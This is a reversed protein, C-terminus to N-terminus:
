KGYAAESEAAMTLREEAEAVTIQGNMLMPLLWDRLETLQKNQLELIDQKKFFLEVVSTFAKIIPKPPLVIEVAKVVGGSVEKFTSGSAKSVITPMTREVTLFVFETSYGDKPVFSKFGQNTTVKERAIAMYGIPARSSMLITGKPLLKLSASRIGEDTVDTEGKTIYRKGVNLSLDKPTIWPTGDTTFNEPEATSPTSGGVINGLDSLTGVGWEGPIERKLKENWEMKGGNSKYPKGDANPFDFQVFWYDYLTRAMAELETNICNNLEIKADLSTLVTAIKNQTLLDPLPIEILRFNTTAQALAPVGVHSKNALLRKQGEKTHFYYVFYIPNVLEADLRVRFQSQSIVYRNYFSNNPIYIIQGLTGRHTVVIDGRSAIAKNLTNAKEPTVYNFKEEGLKFGILNSGNLVPVGESVFNEVKIDSGFPGMSIEKILKKLQILKGRM